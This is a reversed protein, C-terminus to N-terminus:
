HPDNHIHEVSFMDAYNDAIAKASSGPMNVTSLISFDVVTPASFWENLNASMHITPTIVSTVKATDGNFSPAAIKLTNNSGSFGGIHFELKHNTATSQPSIGECKAMIYGTNWSWFMDKAPDLDGSQAGSVNRASDVGIMFQIAKYNSFPVNNISITTTNDDSHDVLHYSNPESWVTNDLKTIKVNSIYYKFMTVTYTNGASNTYTQAGLILNSDGVMPEFLIKLTGATAPPNAAPMPEPEAAKNKKCQTIGLALILITTIQLISKM